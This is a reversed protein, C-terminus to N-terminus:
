AIRRTVGSIVTFALRTLPDVQCTGVLIPDVCPFTSAMRQNNPAARFHGPQSIAKLNLKSNTSAALPLPAAM